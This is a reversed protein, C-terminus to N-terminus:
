TIISGGYKKLCRKCKILFGREGPTVILDIGLLMVRTEGLSNMFGDRKDVRSFIQCRSKGFKVMGKQSEELAKISSTLLKFIRNMGDSLDLM